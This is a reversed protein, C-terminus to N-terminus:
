EKKKEDHHPEIYKAVAHRVVDEGGMGCVSFRGVILDHAYWPASFRVPHREWNCAALNSCMKTLIEQKPFGVDANRGRTKDDDDDDDNDSISMVHPYEIDPGRVVTPTQHLILAACPPVLFDGAVNGYVVRSAFTGLARSFVSGPSAMHELLFPANKGDDEGGGGGGGSDELALQAGTRGLLYRSCYLSALGDRVVSRPACYAGLHPSAFTIFAAPRVRSTLIGREFLVGIAHRTILGGLSHGLLSLRTGTPLSHMQLLAEIEDALRAGCVDIGDHTDWISTANNQATHVVVTDAPHRDAIESLIAHCRSLARPTSHLGAFRLRRSDPYFNLFVCFFGRVVSFARVM